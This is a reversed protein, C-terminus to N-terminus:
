RLLLGVQLSDSTGFAASQPDADTVVASELQTMGGTCATTDRAFAHVCSRTHCYETEAPLTLLSDLLDVSHANVDRRLANCGHQQTTRYTHTCLVDTDQACTLGPSPFTPM